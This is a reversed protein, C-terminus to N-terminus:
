ENVFEKEIAKLWDYGYETSPELYGGEFWENWAYLVLVKRLDHEAQVEKAARLMLPLNEPTAGKTVFRTPRGTKSMDMMPVGSLLYDEGISGAISSWTARHHPVTQTEFDMAVENWVYGSRDKMGETVTGDEILGFAYHMVGDYGLALVHPASDPYRVDTAILYPEAVGAGAALSKWRALEARVADDSGGLATWLEHNSHVIFVPRGDIRWYNPQPFFQELAYEFTGRPYGSAEFHNTWQVAFKMKDAFPNTSVPPGGVTDKGLFAQELSRNAYHSHDVGGDPGVVPFWTFLMLNIGFQRMWHVHWTMVDPSSNRYYQIGFHRSETANSDYLLPIREPHEYALIEWGGLSYEPEWAGFYWVGVTWDQKGPPDFPPPPEHAIDRRLKHTFWDAPPIYDLDLADGASRAAEASRALGVRSIAFSTGNPAQPFSFRIGGIPGEWIPHRALDMALLQLEGPTLDDIYNAVRFPSFDPHLSPRFLVAVEDQDEFSAELLIIPWEEATFDEPDFVLMNDSNPENFTGVLKGNEYRLDDIGHHHPLGSGEANGADWIWRVQDSPHACAALALSFGLFTERVMM